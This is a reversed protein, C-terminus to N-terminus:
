GPRNEVIVQQGLRAGLTDAIVRASNDTVGGPSFPVIIRVPKVPYEQPFAAASTLLALAFGIASLSGLVVGMGARGGSLSPLYRLTAEGSQRIASSANGM